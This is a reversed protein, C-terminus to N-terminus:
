HGFDKGDVFALDRALVLQRQVTIFEDPDMRYEARVPDNVNEPVMVILYLGNSTDDDANCVMGIGLMPHQPGTTSRTYAFAVFEAKQEVYSGESHPLKTRNDDAEASSASESESDSEDLVYLPAGSSAGVTNITTTTTTAPNSSTSSTHTTATTTCASYTVKSSPPTSFRTHGAPQNNNQKSNGADGEDESEGEDSSSETETGSHFTVDSNITMISPARARGAHVIVDAVSSVGRAQGASLSVAGVTSNDDVSIIEMMHNPTQDVASVAPISPISLSVPPVTQQSSLQSGFDDIKRPTGNAFRGRRGGKVVVTSEEDEEVDEMEGKIGQQQESAMLDPSDKEDATELAETDGPLMNPAPSGSSESATGTATRPSEKGQADGQSLLAYPFSNSDKQASSSQKHESISSRKKTPDVGSYTDRPSPYGQKSAAPTVTDTTTARPTEVSPPDSGAVSVDSRPSEHTAASLEKQLKMLRIKQSFSIEESVAPVVDTTVPASAIHPLAGSSVTPLTSRTPQTTSSVAASSTSSTAQTPPTRATLVPPPPPTPVPALVPKPRSLTRRPPMPGTATSICQEPRILGTASSVPPEVGATSPASTSPSPAVAPISPASLVSSMSKDTSSTVSKTKSPTQTPQVASRATTEPTRRGFQQALLKRVSENEKEKQTAAAFASQTSSVAKRSAASSSLTSAISTASPTSTKTVAPIKPQPTPEDPEAPSYDQEAYTEWDMSGESFADSELESASESESEEDSSDKNAKRRKRTTTSTRQLRSKAVVKDVGRSSSSLTPPRGRRKGGVEPIVPVSVKSSSSSQIIKRPEAPATSTPQSHKNFTASPQPRPPTSSSARSKKVDQAMSNDSGDDSSDVDMAYDRSQMMPAVKSTTPKQTSSSPKSSTTTSPVGERSSASPSVFSINTPSPQKSDVDFWLKGTEILDMIDSYWQPKSRAYENLRAGQAQLWAGLALVRNDDTKVTYDVPVQYTGHEMDYEILQAYFENWEADGEASAKNREMKQAAKTPKKKKRNTYSM